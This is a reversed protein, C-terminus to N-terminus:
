SFRTLQVERYLRRRVMISWLLFSSVLATATVALWEIAYVWLLARDKLVMADAELGVLAKEAQRYIDLVEDFRLELYKAKASAIAADVGDMGSVVKRTNAGFTECFDLLTLLLSKRVAIQFMMTRVLHVLNIDQPVPRRGIYIALNSQFDYAYIWPTGWWSLETLDGTYAFVMAGSDLDWTVMAPHDKWAALSTSDIHALLEAGQRLTVVNHHFNNMFYDSPNWPLSRIFENDKNDIVLRGEQVWTGPVDETPLIRGISTQGWAPYGAGGFSEWGGSMLLGRGGEEAGRSLMEIYSTGLAQLNAESLVIVDYRKMLDGYTRPMNMRIARQVAASDYSTLGWGRISAYVFGVSCLPDSVMMKFPPARATDGVFLVGIRGDELGQAFPLQCLGLMALVTVASAGCPLRPSARRVM